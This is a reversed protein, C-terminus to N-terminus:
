DDDKYPLNTRWNLPRSGPVPTNPSFPPEAALPAAQLEAIYGKELEAWEADGQRWLWGRKECYARAAADGAQARLRYHLPAVLPRWHGQSDRRWVTPVM